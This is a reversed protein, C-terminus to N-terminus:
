MLWVMKVRHEASLPPATLPGCSYREPSDVLTEHQNTTLARQEVGVLGDECSARRPAHRITWLLVKAQIGQDDHKWSVNRHMSATRYYSWQAARREESVEGGGGEGKVWTVAVSFERTMAYPQTKSEFSPLPQPPATM